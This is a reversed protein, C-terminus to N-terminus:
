GDQSFGAKPRRIMRHDELISWLQSWVDEASPVNANGAAWCAAAARLCLVAEERVAEERADARLKPPRPPKAAHVRAAPPSSGASRGDLADNCLRDARSNQERPVHHITVLDFPRCKERAQQFLPRLGENKVKYQGNMQKVLLESDSAITLRRLGLAAARDLARVLATYEAVNNTASGLLGSEELDPSGPRSIVFAYAAPGPNGRAAGDIHITAQM